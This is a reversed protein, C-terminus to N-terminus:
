VLCPLIFFTSLKNFYIEIKCFQIMTSSELNKFEM